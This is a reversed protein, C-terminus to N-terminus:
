HVSDNEGSPVTQRAYRPHHHRESFQDASNTEFGTTAAVRNHSGDSRASEGREFPLVHEEYDRRKQPQDPVVFIINETVTKVFAKSELEAIELAQETKANELDISIRRAPFDPDYVVTLGALKGITDFVIRADNSMKLSFPGHLKPKIEPPRSAIQQDNPDAPPEAAADTARNKEAIMELTTRLEQKAVPSAPDITQAKLFEAAAGQLNDKKLLEVGRKVHTQSAEFETQNLRIKYGANYPDSKAAKQYFEYAADYDQLAEAKM